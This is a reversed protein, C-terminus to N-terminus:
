CARVAGAAFGVCAVRLPMFLAAPKLKHSKGARKVHSLVDAGSTADEPLSELADALVQLVTAPQATVDLM